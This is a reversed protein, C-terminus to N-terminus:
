RFTLPQSQIHVHLGINGVLAAHVNLIDERGSSCSSLVAARWLVVALLTINLVAYWNAAQFRLHWRSSRDPKCTRLLLRRFSQLLTVRSSFYPDPVTWRVIFKILSQVTGDMGDRSPFYPDEVTVRFLFYPDPVTARLIVKTISVAGWNAAQFRLNWRSCRATKLTAANRFWTGRTGRYEAGRYEMDSQVICCSVMSVSVIPANTLHYEVVQFLFRM